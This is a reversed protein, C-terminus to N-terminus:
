LQCTFRMIVLIVESTNRKKALHAYKKKGRNPNNKCSSKNHGSDGCLSCVIVTGHKSMKKTKPKEQEERKRDNKKPRGPM